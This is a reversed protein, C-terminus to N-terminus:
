FKANWEESWKRVYYIGILVSLIYLVITWNTFETPDDGTIVGVMVGALLVALTIGFM